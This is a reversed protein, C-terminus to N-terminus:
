INFLGSCMLTKLCQLIFKNITYNFNFSVQRQNAQVQMMDQLGGLMDVLSFAEKDIAMKKSDIRSMDLIDNILYLLYQSSARIQWLKEEIPKPVDPLMCTLEAMGVIANMPTRIEHSMRSLFEGKAKSEAEARKLENQM